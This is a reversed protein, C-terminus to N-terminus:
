KVAARRLYSNEKLFLPVKKRNCDFLKIFELWSLWIYIGLNIITRHLDDSMLGWLLSRKIHWATGRFLQSLLPFHPSPVGRFFKHTDSYFALSRSTYAHTYVCCVCDQKSKVCNTYVNYVNLGKKNQFCRSSFLLCDCCVFVRTCSVFRSKTQLQYTSNPAYNM